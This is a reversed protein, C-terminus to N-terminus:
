FFDPKAISRVAAMLGTQLDTTAISLWRPDANEYMKLYQLHQEISVGLEKISNIAVKQEASLVKYGEIEGDVLASSTGIPEDPLSLKSDVIEQTVVGTIYTAEFVKKTCVYLENKVGRIIADGISIPMIGETSVLSMVPHENFDAEGNIFDFVAQSDLGTFIVYDIEIQKKTAKM